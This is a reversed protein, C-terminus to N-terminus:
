RMSLLKQKLETELRAIEGEAERRKTRGEDQIRMVEDLTQLLSENTHKLTELDVIGRESEKATEITSIKLRDANKKLLQNTMDSVQRQAQVAQESHALGLSLVMQSKWLPITNLITSQIKEGMIKDNNQVLRIQPSMQISVMRTLELDHLKKEFADCQQSFDNAAQAEEPLASKQAKERMQVLTTAREKNLKKKGAIIYMTLEKQYNLNQDYLKDLMVIDKMLQIQHGELTKAIKDVNVQAKDYRAKVAKIKKSTNKFLAFFGKEEEEADFEKLEVVLNSIDEGIEGLDKTSVKSLAVDSFAAIKKQAGAGYQMVVASDTVDIKDAFDEVMKQEEPSLSGENLIEVQRPAEPQQPVAAEEEVTDLTLTPPQLEDELSLTIKENQEM